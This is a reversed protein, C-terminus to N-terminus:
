APPQRAPLGQRQLHPLTQPEQAFRWRLLIGLGGDPVLHHLHSGSQCRVWPEPLDAYSSSGFSSFCIFVFCPFIYFIVVKLKHEKGEKKRGGLRSWGEAFSVLCSVVLHSIVVAAVAWWRQKECADFFVVGWFMHLLIIAMTMFAPFPFMCSETFELQAIGWRIRM